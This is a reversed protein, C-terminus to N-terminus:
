RLKIPYVCISCSEKDDNTKLSINFGYNTWIGDGDEVVVKGENQKEKVWEAMTIIAEPLNELEKEEFKNEDVSSILVDITTKM